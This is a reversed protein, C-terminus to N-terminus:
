ATLRTLTRIESHVIVSALAAAARLLKLEEKTAEHGPEFTARVMVGSVAPVAFYLSDIDDAPEVLRDALTVNCGPVLQRLGTEFEARADDSRRHQYLETTVRVILDALSQPAVHPTATIDIVEVPRPVEKFLELAAGFHAATQYTVGTGTVTAVESRVIRAPLVHTSEPALVNLLTESDRPFKLPSEFLVGTSSVNLMRVILGAPTALTCRSPLEDVAFRRARELHKREFHLPGRVANVMTPVRMLALDSAAAPHLILATAPEVHVPRVRPNAKAERAERMAEEIRALVAGADYSPRRSPRRNFALAFRRRPAETLEPAELLPPITIVPVNGDPDLHKLADIVQEEARPPLVASTLVLDPRNTHIAGAAADASAVIVLDAEVRGDLLARLHERCRTDPEIALIRLRHTDM